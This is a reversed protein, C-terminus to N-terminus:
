HWASVPPLADWEARVLRSVDFGSRRAIEVLAMYRAEPLPERALIWLYRRDGTGVVVSAYEPDLHLIWYNGERPTPALRAWFSAFRVVLRSNASGPVPTAVGEIRRVGGSATECQNVVRVGDEIVRYSARARVCDRQFFAPLRALELWEGAYRDLDVPGAVTPPPKACGASLALLAGLLLSWAM